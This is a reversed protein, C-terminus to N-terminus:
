RYHQNFGNTGNMMNADQMTSDPYFQPPYNFAQVEQLAYSTYADGTYSPQTIAPSVYGIDATDNTGLMTIDNNPASLPNHLINFMSTTGVDPFRFSPPQGGTSNSHTPSLLTCTLGPSSIQTCTYVPSALNTPSPTWNFPQSPSDTMESNSEVNRDTFAARSQNYGRSYLDPTHQLSPVSNSRQQFTLLSAGDPSAAGIVGASQRRLSALQSEHSQGVEMSDPHDQNMNSAGDKSEQEEQKFLNISSSEASVLNEPEQNITSKRPRGKSSTSKTSPPNKAVRKKRRKNRKVFPKVCKIHEKDLTGEKLRQELEMVDYMEHLLDKQSQRLPTDDTAARLHSIPVLRDRICTMLVQIRANKLLHDPERHPADPPWWWPRTADGGNYPSHAQKKPEIVKVWAKAIVKCDLQQIQVFKHWLYKNVAVEDGICLEVMEMEEETDELERRDESDKGRIDPAEITVWEREPDEEDM